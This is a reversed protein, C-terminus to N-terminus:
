SAGDKRRRLIAHQVSTIVVATFLTIAYLFAKARKEPDAIASGFRVLRGWKGRFTLFLSGVPAVTFVHEDAGLIEELIDTARVYMM